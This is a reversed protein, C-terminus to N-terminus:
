KGDIRALVARAQEISDIEEGVKSFYGTIDDLLQRMVPAEIILRANALHQEHEHKPDLTGLQAVGWGKALIQIQVPLTHGSQKKCHKCVAEGARDLPETSNEKLMGDRMRWPGPTFKM